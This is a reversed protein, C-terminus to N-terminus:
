FSIASFTRRDNQMPESGNITERTLIPQTEDPAATNDKLFSEMNRVNKFDHLLKGMSQSEALAHLM